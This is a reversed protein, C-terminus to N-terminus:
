SLTIRDSQIADKIATLTVEVEEKTTGDAIVVRVANTVTGAATATVDDIPVKAAVDIQTPM